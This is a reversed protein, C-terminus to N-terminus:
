GIPTYFESRSALAKPLNSAMEIFDENLLKTRVKMAHLGHKMANASTFYTKKHMSSMVKRPPLVYDTQHLKNERKLAAHLDTESDYDDKLLGPM